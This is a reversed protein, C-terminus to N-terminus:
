AGPRDQRMTVWSSLYYGENSYGANLDDLNFKQHDSPREPWLTGCVAWSSYFITWYRDSIWDRATLLPWGSRRM